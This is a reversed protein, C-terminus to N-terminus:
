KGAAARHDPVEGARIYDAANPVFKGYVKHVLATTNHGLQFAVVGYSYGDKLAQVAYTHRHDRTSYNELKIAKCASLLVKRTREIARRIELDSDDQGLDFVYALPVGPSTRLHEKVIDAAWTETMRRVRDRTTTKTGPVRITYEKKDDKEIDRYRVRLAGGADVGTALLFAHLARHVPPLAAVLAKAEERALYQVRAPNEKRAKLAIVPNAEILERDLLYEAFSSAAARYRNRTAPRRDDLWERIRAKRFTSLPFPVGKPILTRLQALYKDASRPIDKSKLQHWNLVLPELDIDRAAEARSAVLESLTSGSWATYADQLSLSGEAIPNLVDWRQSDALTRLMACLARARRKDTTDLSRRTAPPRKQPIRAWWIDGRLFPHPGPLRETKPM